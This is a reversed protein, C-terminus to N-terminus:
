RHSITMRSHTKMIILDIENRDVYRIIKEPPFGCCIDTIVVTGEARVSNAIKELKEHAQKLAESKADRLVNNATVYLTFSNVPQMIRLLYLRAEYCQALNHAYSLTCDSLESRYLPILINKFM